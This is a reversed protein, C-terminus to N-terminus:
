KRVVVCAFAFGIIIVGVSYFADITGNVLTYAGIAMTTIGIIQFM